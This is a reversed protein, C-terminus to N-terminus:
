STVVWKKFHALSTRVESNADSHLMGNTLMEIAELMDERSPKPVANEEEDWEKDSLALYDEYAVSTAISDGRKRPYLFPLLLSFTMRPALSSSQLLELSLHPQKTALSPQSKTTKPLCNTLTTLTTTMNETIQEPKGVVFADWSTFIAGIASLENWKRQPQKIDIRVVLDHVLMDSFKMKVLQIINQDMPQLVRTTNPLMFLLETNCLEVTPHVPCNDIFLVVRINRTSVRAKFAKLCKPFLDSTMWTKKNYNYCCPMINATFSRPKASKACHPARQQKGEKCNDGKVALTRDLMLNYFLGMEDANYIDTASEGVNKHWTIGNQKKFHDLWGISCKFSDVKLMIAFLNTKEQIMPGIIPVNQGRSQNFWALLAKEVDEYDNGENIKMINEYKTALDLTKRKSGM